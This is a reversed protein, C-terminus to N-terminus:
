AIATMEYPKVVHDGLACTIDRRNYIEGITWNPNQWFTESCDLTLNAAGTAGFTIPYQPDQDDCNWSQHVGLQNTPRSFNFNARPDDCAYQVTGYFFDTLQSSAAACHTTSHDAPNFLDFNTYGWSNQHAPTSFIYNAHFDFNKVTWSFNKFSTDTCGTSNSQRLKIPGALALPLVLLSLIPLHM